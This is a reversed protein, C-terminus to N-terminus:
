RCFCLFGRMGLAIVEQDRITQQAAEQASTILFDSLTRGQLAAARQFVQKEMASVRAVLRHTKSPATPRSLSDALSNVGSFDTECVYM